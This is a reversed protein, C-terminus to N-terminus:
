EHITVNNGTLIDRINPIEELNQVLVLETPVRVEWPKSGEPYPVGENDFKGLNAAIEDVIPVYLDDDRMPPDNGNWIGGFQCYHVVAKEFGPRVPIQVRAAGARLFAAFDADPDTLHIASIWRAHRGWFYPYFVYVINTWEFANEFFRIFSGNECAKDLRMLPESSSYFSDRYIANSGTLMMLVLKKLEDKMIRQNELPNRGLNPGEQIALAAKKEEYDARLKLYAETIGDFVQQQWKTFGEDSLRCSVDIGLTFSWTNWLIYAVSLERYRMDLEKYTCGWYGSVDFNTGGLMVRYQHGKDKAFIYDAMVTAGFAEYGVPVDIKAARGFTSGDQVNDQKDFYAANQFEPPPAPVARVQYKAVYQQYNTRSLHSPKLAQGNFTPPDPKIIESDTPPNDVMAYLFYAAPEPVVFEYMMRQGYNFIQADYVKNLWRYIGRIHKTSSTNTFSHRNIEQIEQLVRQTVTQKLRETVKESAKQTVEQSFSVTKRQTEESSTSFNANLHAAFSVTPGYSGSVQLGAELGFQEKVTKDAETQM